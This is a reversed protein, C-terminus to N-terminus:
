PFSLGKAELVRCFEDGSFWHSNKRESNLEWVKRERIQDASMAEVVPLGGKVGIFFNSNGWKGVRYLNEIWFPKGSWQMTGLSEREPNLAWQVFVKFDELPLYQWGRTGDDTVILEKSLFTPNRWAADILGARGYQVGIYYDGQLTMLDSVRARKDDANKVTAQEYHYGQFEGMAFDVLSLLTQRAEISIPATRGESELRLLTRIIDIISADTQESEVAPQWSVLSKVDSPRLAVKDMEDSFAAPVFWEEAEGIAPVLYILLIKFNGEFGKQALIKQLGAYQNLIQNSTKSSLAIKNEIMIFWDGCRVVLDIFGGPSNVELEVAVDQGNEEFINDWLRSKFKAALAQLESNGQRDAIKQILASLFSYGLGHDMRPSILYALFASVFEERFSHKGSALTRFINM